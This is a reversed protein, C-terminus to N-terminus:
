ISPELEEQRRHYGSEDLQLTAADKLPLPVHSAAAVMGGSERHSAMLTGLSELAQADLGSAPEDLLWMKVPTLCLRALAVRRCQGLSLSAVPVPLLPRLHFCEIGKELSERSAGLFKAWFELNAQASSRKSLANEHGLYCATAGLHIEGRAPKLMGALMRLLSTKGCGNAGQVVLAGGPRLRVNVNHFVERGGRACAVKRLEIKSSSFLQVRM